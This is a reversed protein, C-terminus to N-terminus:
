TDAAGSASHHNRQPSIELYIILYISLDSSRIFCLFKAEKQDRSGSSGNVRIPHIGLLLGFGDVMGAVQQNCCARTRALRSHEDLPRQPDQCVVRVM